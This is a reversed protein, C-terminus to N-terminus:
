HLDTNGAKNKAEWYRAIGAMLKARAEPDKWQKKCMRQKAATRKADPEATKATRKTSPGVAGAPKTSPAAKPGKAAPTQKRTSLKADKRLAPKKRKGSPTPPM